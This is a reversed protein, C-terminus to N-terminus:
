KKKEDCFFYNSDKCKRFLPEIGYKSLYQEIECRSNTGLYIPCQKEWLRYEIKWKNINNDIGAMAHNSTNIFIVPRYRDNSFYHDITATCKNCHINDKELQNDESDGSYIDPFDFKTPLGDELVISFSEVDFTRGHRLKRFIRYTWDLWANERLREDNYVITVLVKNDNVSPALHIEQIYNRVREGSLDRAPHYIVPRINGSLKIQRKDVEVPSFHQTSDKIESSKLKISELIKTMINKTENNADERLWIKHQPDLYLVWCDRKDGNGKKGHLQEEIKEDYVMNPLLSFKVDFHIVYHLTYKNLKSSTNSQRKDWRLKTNDELFINKTRKVMFRITDSSNKEFSVKCNKWHWPKLDKRPSGTFSFWINTFEEYLDDGYELLLLSNNQFLLRLIKLYMAAFM